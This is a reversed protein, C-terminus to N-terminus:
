WTRSFRLGSKGFWAVGEALAATGAATDGAKVLSYGHAAKTMAADFPIPSLALAEECCPLGAEPDGRHSHTWGTRWLAVVKVWLDNVAPAHELPLRRDELSKRWEGLSIANMSLVWLTRCAWWINGRAEFFALAREGAAVAARLDGAVAYVHALCCESLA